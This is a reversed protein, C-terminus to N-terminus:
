AHKKFYLSFFNKTKEGYNCRRGGTQKKFIKATKKLGLIKLLKQVDDWDGYNLTAEVISDANLCDYDQVYWILNKRKKIFDHITM